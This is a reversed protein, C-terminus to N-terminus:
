RSRSSTPPSACPVAHVWAPHWGHRAMRRGVELRYVEPTPPHKRVHRTHNCHFCAAVVNSPTDRGGDTRAVLHEATCRLRSAAASSPLEADLELSSTLWMPAGCYWCLGHQLLFARLRLRCIRSPM